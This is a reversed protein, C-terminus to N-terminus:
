ALVVWSWSAPGRWPGYCHHSDLSVTWQTWLDALLAAPHHWRELNSRVLDGGWPWIGFHGCSRGLAAYKWTLLSAGCLFLAIGCITERRGGPSREAGPRLKEAGLYAAFPFIFYADCSTFLGAAALAALRARPTPFTRLLMVTGLFLPINMESNVTFHSLLVPATAYLSGICLAPLLGFARRLWAYLVLVTACGLFLSAAQLALITNGFLVLFPAHILAFFDSQYPVGFGHDFRGTRLLEIARAADRTTDGGLYLTSGVAAPFAM